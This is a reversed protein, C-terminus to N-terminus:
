PKKALVRLREMEEVLKATQMIYKRGYRNLKKYIAAIKLIEQDVMKEDSVPVDNYGSDMPLSHNRNLEGLGCHNIRSIKGESVANNRFGIGRLSHPLVIGPITRRERQNFPLKHNQLISPKTNLTIKDELSKRPVYGMEDPLYPRLLPYLREWYLESIEKVKGACFKEILQNGVGSKRGLEARSNKVTYSLFAKAIKTDFKM